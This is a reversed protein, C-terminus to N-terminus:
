SMERDRAATLDSERTRIEWDRDGDRGLGEMGVRGGSRGLVKGDTQCDPM